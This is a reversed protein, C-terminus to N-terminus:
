NFLQKRKSPSLRSHALLMLSALLASISVKMESRLSAACRLIPSFGIADAIFEVSHPDHQFVVLVACCRPFYFCHVGASKWLWRQPRIKGGIERKERFGSRRWRPISRQRNHRLAAGHRPRRGGIVVFAKACFSSFPKVRTANIPPPGTPNITEAPAAAEDVLKIDM